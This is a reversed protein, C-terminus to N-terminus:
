ERNPLTSEILSVTAAIAEGAALIYWPLLKIPWKRLEEALSDAVVDAGEFSIVEGVTVLSSYSLFGLIFTTVAFLLLLAEAFPEGLDATAGEFDNEFGRIPRLAIESATVPPSFANNEVADGGILSEALSGGARVPDVDGEPADCLMSRSLVSAEELPVEPACM